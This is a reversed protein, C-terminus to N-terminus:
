ALLGALALGFADAEDSDEISVNFQRKLYGKVLVKLDVKKEKGKNKGKSFVGRKIKQIEEENKQNFGIRSRVQMPMLFDQYDVDKKFILYIATSFRVLSKLCNVNQGMFSDEIINLRWEKREPMSQKYKELEMVFYDLRHKIDDKPNTIIKDLSVIEIDTKNTKLLCNGTQHEAVDWGVSVCDKRIKKNLKKEIEAISLKQM